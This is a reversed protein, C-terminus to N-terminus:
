REEDMYEPEDFLEMSEEDSSLEFLEGRDHLYRPLGVAGNGVLLYVAEGSKLKIEEATEYGYDEAWKVADSLKM